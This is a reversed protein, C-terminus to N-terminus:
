NALPGPRVQFKVLFPGSAGDEGGEMHWVPGSSYTGWAGKGKWGAKPDDIRGDLGRTRFGLPYPVRIVSYKKAKDDFALLSDSNSGATIVTDKGMGLTDHVDVWGLYHFDATGTKTGAIKPGPADYVSWGEPCHQGNAVAPGAVVKCKAREFRSLQGNGTFGWAVGKSDASVGRQGFTMYSQGDPLLPPEYMETKCTEPPNSGPNFRVLQTPFPATKAAWMSGDSVDADIGYLFGQVRTDKKPDFAMKPGVEESSEEGTSRQEAPNNWATRDPTITVDSPSPRKTPETSNSDVVMPCWGVAKASDKTKAWEDIDLWSVVKNDGGSFYLDKRNVNFQLHHIHNCMPVGSYKNGKPDFNVAMNKAAGPQPYYKAYKNSPDTCFALKPPYSEGAKMDAPPKGIDTLWVTGNKDVMPNHPRDDPLVEAPLTEAGKNPTVKYGYETTAGTKANLVELFGWWLVVGFVPGNANVTPDHRDTMSIDHVYRGNAWDWSTLVVNREIGQPRPPAEKPLEGAAIRQTWDAWMSLGRQRGFGTMLNNMQNSYAPGHDRLAQDENGRAKNIREAWGEVTNNELNRTAAHGLQHCVQCSNSAQDMWNQQTKMRPAIGNGKPGTGPFESADPFKILSYWYNPPYIQAATKADPAVVATLKIDNKGRAAAVPKSDVLGYGRVFLEYNAKPLDPLFFRGQDDTVVIKLMKAALDSTQAIVWVGAEPGKSSTVVGGIGDEAVPIGAAAAAYCNAAAFNVAVFSTSILLARMFRSTM